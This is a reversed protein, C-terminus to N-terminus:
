TSASCPAEMAKDCAAIIAQPVTSYKDEERTMDTPPIPLFCQLALGAAQPYRQENLAMCALECWFEAWHPAIALAELVTRRAADVDGAMQQCRALHLRAFLAMDGQAQIKISRGYWKVASPWDRAVRYEQGFYYATRADPRVKWEEALIRLNRANSTEGGQEEVNHELTVHPLDLETRASGATLYEHIKGKYRIGLGARWIRRGKCRYDGEKIRLSLFDHPAGLADSLADPTTLTEDADIAFIRTAGRQEALSIAQNRAAAFDWLKWDGAADRRSADTYTSVHVPKRIAGKAVEITRDTSGTDVLVVGDVVAEISALCAPLDLEENKVILAALIM